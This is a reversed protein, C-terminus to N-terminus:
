RKEEKAEVQANIGRAFALLHPSVTHRWSSSRVEARMLRVIEGMIGPTLVGALESCAGGMGNVFGDQWATLEEYPQWYDDHDLDHAAARAREDLRNAALEIEARWGDLQEATEAKV